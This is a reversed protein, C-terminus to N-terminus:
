RRTVEPGVVDLGLLLLVTSLNILALLVLPLASMLSLEELLESMESLSESRKCAGCGVADPADDPLAAAPAVAPLEDDELLVVFMFWATIAVEMGDTAVGFEGAM